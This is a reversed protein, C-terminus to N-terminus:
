VKRPLFKKGKNNKHLGRSCNERNKIRVMVLKRHLDNLSFTYCFIKCATKEWPFVDGVIGYAM